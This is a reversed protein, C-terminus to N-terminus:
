GSVAFKLKMKPKVCLLFNTNCGFLKKRSTGRILSFSYPDIQESIPSCLNACMKKHHSIICQIKINNKCAM